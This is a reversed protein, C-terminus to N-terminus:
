YAGMGFTGFVMFVVFFWAHYNGVAAMIQYMFRAWGDGTFLVFVTLIARPFTQFNLRDRAQLEQGYIQMGGTAFIFLYLMTLALIGALPSLSKKISSIIKRLSKVRRTKSLVNVIRLMRAANIGRVNTFINVVSLFVVITDFKNFRSNWYAFGEATFNVALEFLFFLACLNNVQISIWYLSGPAYSWSSGRICGGPKTAGRTAVTLVHQVDADNSAPKYKFM